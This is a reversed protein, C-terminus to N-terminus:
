EAVSPVYGMKALQAETVHISVNTGDARDEVPIYIGREEEGFCNYAEVTRAEVTEGTANDWINVTVDSCLSGM